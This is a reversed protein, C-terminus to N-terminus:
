LSRELLRECGDASFVLLTRAGDPASLIVVVVPDGAVTASSVIASKSSGTLEDSRDTPCGSGNSGQAGLTSADSGADSEDRDEIAAVLDALSAYSGLYTAGAATTTTAGAGSDAAAEPASEGISSGADEFGGSTAEAADDSEGLKGLLPVLAALLVVAAAAGVLRLYRAPSQRQRAAVAALSAVPALAAAAAGEEAFAALSAAIAAERRAPDIPPLAAVADRVARLEEVRALLAPDAAVRAAEEASTTGDLHASALEDLDDPQPDPHLHDTM